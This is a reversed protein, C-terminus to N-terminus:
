LVIFFQRTVTTINENYAQNTEQNLNSAPKFQIVKFKYGYDDIGNRLVYLMGYKSVTEEFRNYFRKIPDNGIVKQYAKWKKLQTKEIYSILTKLDLAKIKDFENNQFLQKSWGGQKSILWTEIDQEFRKENDKIM